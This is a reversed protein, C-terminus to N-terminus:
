NPAHPCAIFFLRTANAPTVTAAAAASDAERLPQPVASAPTEAWSRGPLLTAALGLSGIRLLDRRGWLPATGGIPTDM